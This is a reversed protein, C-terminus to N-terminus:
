GRKPIMVGYVTIKVKNSIVGSLSDIGWQRRDIAVTAKFRSEEPTSTPDISVDWVIPRNIGKLTLNGHMKISYKGTVVNHTSNFSLYKYKEANLFAKSKIFGSKIGADLTQTNLDISYQTEALNDLDFRCTGKFDKFVAETGAIGPVFFEACTKPSVIGEFAYSSISGVYLFLIIMYKLYRFM